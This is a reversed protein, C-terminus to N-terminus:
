EVARLRGNYINYGSEQLFVAMKQLLGGAKTGARFVEGGSSEGTSIPM